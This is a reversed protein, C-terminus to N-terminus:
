TMRWCADEGPWTLRDLRIQISASFAARLCRPFLCVRALYQCHILL